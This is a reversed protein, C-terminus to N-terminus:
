CGTAMLLYEKLIKLSIASKDDAFTRNNLLLSIALINIVIM